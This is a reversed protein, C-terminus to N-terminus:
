GVEVARLLDDMHSQADFAPGYTDKFRRLLKVTVSRDGRRIKYLLDASVGIAEAVAAVGFREIIENMDM